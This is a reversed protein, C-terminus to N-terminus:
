RKRCFFTWSIEDYPFDFRGFNHYAPNRLVFDNVVQCVEFDAPSFDNFVIWGGPGVFKEWDLFDQKAGAYSHDGDIYLLRIKQDAPWALAVPHSYDQHVVVQKEVGARKLNQKLDATRGNLQPDIAHVQERQGVKAGAALCCTTFGEFSGIEVIAGEGEGNKALDYLFCGTELSSLIECTPAIKELVEHVFEPHPRRRWRPVSEFFGPHLALFLTRGFGRILRSPLSEHVM